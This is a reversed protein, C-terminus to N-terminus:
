FPATGPVMTPAAVIAKDGVVSGGSQGSSNSGWCWVSGDGRLACTHNDGCVIQTVLTLPNSGIAVTTPVLVNAASLPQGTQGLANSGWCLVTSNYTRVCTHSKGACLSYANGVNTLAPKSDGADATGHGLQGMQNDGWCYLTNASTVACTHLEGAAVQTVQAIGAVQTPTFQNPMLNNKQGTQGNSNNGWCLLNSAVVACAHRSGLAFYTMNQAEEVVLPTSSSAMAPGPPVAISVGQGLQGNANNGWCYLDRSGAQGAMAGYSACAFEDGTAVYSVGTVPPNAAPNNYPLSVPQDSATDNTNQNGIQGKDGAGWCKAKLGSGTVACTFHGGNDASYINSASNGVIPTTSFKTSNSIGLQGRDNSGWCMLYSSGVAPFRRACSESGGASVLNAFPTKCVNNDACIKSPPNGVPGCNSAYPLGVHKCGTAATCSDTTCPNLDDCSIQVHTCTGSQLSCSDTTCQDGDDCNLATNVCGVGFKCSDATCLNGDDCNAPKKSCGSVKDCSGISCPDGTACNLQGGPACVGGSCVDGNSCANGDDCPGIANGKDCDGTKPNCTLTQCTAPQGCSKAPGAVCAGGSCQDPVTCLSGDDCFAANNIHICGIKPDCSDNTCKNADDCNQVPGATCVGSACKDSGTCVSGDADCSGGDNVNSILCKGTAPVCANKQCATDGLASCSAPITKPDVVCNFPPKSKDCILTDNCLNNDEKAKCDLDAQCGCNNAGGICSGGACLDGVTCVSGDECKATNNAHQCGIKVDCSDDSCNNKDDCNTASGKCVGSACQDLDTCANGDSCLASNNDHTCGTKAGCADNTCPNNDDCNLNVVSSCNGSQCTSASTCKNGDDCSSGEEKQTTQCGGNLKDCVPVLCAYGPCVKPNGVCAGNKCVDGITCLDGDECEKGSQQTYTCAAPLSCAGGKCIACSDATCVNKDDCTGEDIFSDCNNDLGDCVEASPKTASCASLGDGECLRKGNCTGIKDDKNFCTTNLKKTLALGSCSCLGPQTPASASPDLLCQQAQGGSSTPVSKCHYGAICDADKACDTGCFNGQGGYSVCAAAPAGAHQCDSDKNCPDCLTLTKYQCVQVTGASGKYEGCITDEACKLFCPTACLKTADTTALCAGSNCKSDDKCACGPGGPCSMSFVEAADADGSSDPAAAGDADADAPLATDPAADKVDAIDAVTDAVDPGAANDGAADGQADVADVDALNLTDQYDHLQALLAKDDAFDGLCAPLLLALVFALVNHAVWMSRPTPKQNAAKPVFVESLARM